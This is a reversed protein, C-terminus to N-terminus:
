ALIGEKTKNQSVSPLTQINSHIMKSFYRWSLVLSFASIGTIVLCSWQFFDLFNGDLPWLNRTFMVGVYGLYGFADAVSMLFGLNGKAPTMALLREFITTHVIVYPLYLGLGTLVMFSFANFIGARQGVIAITMILLGALCIGISLSFATTNKKIFIMGGTLALVVAAVLFESKTYIDAAAPDGLCRWLEPAFDARVSRVITILLYMLVLLLLGVSYDRLLSWRAERNMTYRKKRLAVDADNPQPTISLMAIGICLPLLYLMGAAAPMWRESVGSELLWAGVSKTVGDALIFSACLGATLAETLRRGELFGLVLGFVMGLVLGNVFLGFVNWPHPLAGFLVLGLQSVAVLILILLARRQPPTESVVKIGIFKSLMYGLVQVSVAVTKYDVGWLEPFDAYGAATFPKRFGYMCFYTGFAAIVSFFAWFMDRQNIRTNIKNQTEM